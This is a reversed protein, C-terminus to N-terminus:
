ADDDLEALLCARHCWGWGRGTRAFPHSHREALMFIRRGCICCRKLV